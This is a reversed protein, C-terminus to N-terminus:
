RQVGVNSTWDGATLHHQREMAQLIPTSRNTLGTAGMQVCLQQLGTQYCLSHVQTVAYAEGSKRLVERHQKLRVLRVM